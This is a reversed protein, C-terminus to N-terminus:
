RFSRGAPRRIKEFAPVEHRESTNKGWATVCLKRADGLLVALEIEGVLM